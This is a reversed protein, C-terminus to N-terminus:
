RCASLVAVTKINTYMVFTTVSFANGNRESELKLGFVNNDFKLEVRLSTADIDTDNERVFFCEYIINQFLFFQKVDIEWYREM